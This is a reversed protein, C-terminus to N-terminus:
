SPIPLPNTTFSNLNVFVGHYQIRIDRFLSWLLKKGWEAMMANICLDQTQLSERVSCSPKSEVDYQGLDPFVKEVTPLSAKMDNNPQPVKTITGLIVQGIHRDNGLDIWYYPKLYDRYENKAGRRCLKSIKMRTSGKDVCSITINSLNMDNELQSSNFNKPIAIWNLGFARNIRTILTTAKNQGIDSALFAQRGINAPSVTDADFAVVTIGPHDLELLAHNLQALKTLMHSGTGGCGILNVTIPHTPNLFYAPVNHVTSKM